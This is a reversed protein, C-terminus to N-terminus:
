FMILPLGRVIYLEDLNLECLGRQEGRHRKKPADAVERRRKKAPPRVSDGPPLEIVNEQPLIRNKDHVQGSAIRTVSSRPQVM